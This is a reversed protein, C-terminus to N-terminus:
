GSNQLVIQPLASMASPYTSTESQGV